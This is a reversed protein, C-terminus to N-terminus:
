PTNRDDLGENLNPYVDGFLANNIKEWAGKTEKGSTFRIDTLDKCGYLFMRKDFYWTHKKFMVSALKAAKTTNYRNTGIRCKDLYKHIRKADM